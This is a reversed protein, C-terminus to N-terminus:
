SEKTIINIRGSRAAETVAIADRAYLRAAERVGGAREVALPHWYRFQEEDVDLTLVLRVKM